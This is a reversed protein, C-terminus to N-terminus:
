GSTTRRPGQCTVPAFLKSRAFGSCFGSRLGRFAPRPNRRRRVLLWTMHASRLLDPSRVRRPRIHPRSFIIAAQGGSPTNPRVGRGKVKVDYAPGFNRM